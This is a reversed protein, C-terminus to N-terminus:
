VCLGPFSDDGHSGGEPCGIDRGRGIQEIRSQYNRDWCQWEMFFSASIVNDPAIFINTIGNSTIVGNSVNQFVLQGQNAVPLGFQNGTVGTGVHALVAGSWSSNVGNNFFDWAVAGNSSISMNDNAVVAMSSLLQTNANARNSTIGVRLSAAGGNAVELKASPALTGIGVNGTTNVVNTAQAYVISIGATNLLV